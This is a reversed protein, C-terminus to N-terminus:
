TSCTTRVAGQLTPYEVSSYAHRADVDEDERSHEKERRRGLAGSGYDVRVDFLVHVATPSAFSRFFFPLSPLSSFLLPFSSAFVPFSILHFGAAWMM